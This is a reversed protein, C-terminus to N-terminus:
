DVRQIQEKLERQEDVINQLLTNTEDIKAGVDFGDNNVASAKIDLRIDAASGKFVGEIINSSNFKSLFGSQRKLSKEEKELVKLREKAEKTKKDEQISQKLILAAQEGLIKNAEEQVRLYEDASIKNEKLLKEYVGFAEIGTKSNLEQLETAEKIRKGEEIRAKNVKRLKVLYQNTIDFLFKSDRLSENTRTLDFFDVNDQGKLSTRDVRALLSNKVEQSFAKASEDSLKNQKRQIEILALREKAEQILLSNNKETNEIRKKGARVDDGFENFFGLFGRLVGGSKVAISALEKINNKIKNVQASLSSANEVAQKSFTKQFEKSLKPLLDTALIKGQRLLDGLESETVGLAKATAQIAQPLREGIQGRLEEAQVTGKSIIQSFAIFVSNTEDASLSLAASANSVAKFLAVVNEGELATGKAASAITSLGRQTSILDLGLKNSIESSLSMYENFEQTSSTAFKMRNAIRDFALANDILERTYLVFASLAITIAGGFGSVANKAENASRSVKQTQKDVQKMASATQKIKTIPLKRLEQNFRMAKDTAQKFGANSKGIERRLEGFKPLAKAGGITKLVRGMRTLDNTAVRTATSLENLKKVMKDTETAAKNINASWKGTVLELEIRLSEVIASKDAM